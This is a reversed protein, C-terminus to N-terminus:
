RINSELYSCVLVKQIPSSGSGTQAKPLMGVLQSKEPLLGSVRAWSLGLPSSPNM